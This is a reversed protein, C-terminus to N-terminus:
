YVKTYMRIHKSEFVSVNSTDAQSSISVTVSEVVSGNEKREYMVTVRGVCYVTEDTGDCDNNCPESQHTIALFHGDSISGYHKM